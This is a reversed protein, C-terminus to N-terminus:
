VPLGSFSANQVILISMWFGGARSPAEAQQIALLLTQTEQMTLARGVKLLQM